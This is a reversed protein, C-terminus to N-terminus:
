TLIVCSVKIDVKYLEALHMDLMVQRARVTYIRNEIESQELPFLCAEMNLLKIIISIQQPNFLFKM